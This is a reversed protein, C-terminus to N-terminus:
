LVHSFPRVCVPARMPPGRPGMENHLTVFIHSDLPIPEGTSIEVLQFRTSHHAALRCCNLFIDSAEARGEVTYVTATLPNYRCVPASATASPAPPIHDDMNLRRNPPLRASSVSRATPPPSPSFPQFGPPMAPCQPTTQPHPPLSPADPIEIIERMTNTAARATFTYAPTKAKHKASSLQERTQLPLLVTSALQRLNIPIRDHQQAQWLILPPREFESLFGTTATETSDTPWGDIKFHYASNPCFRGPISAGLYTTTTIASEGISLYSKLYNRNMVTATTLIRDCWLRWVFGNLMELVSSFAEPDTASDPWTGSMINPFCHADYLPLFQRGSIQFLQPDSAVASFWPEMIPKLAQLVAEFPPSNNGLAARISAVFEPFGIDTPWRLGLPLNCVEPLYFARLFLDEGHQVTAGILEGEPLLLPQSDLLINEVTTKLSPDRYYGEQAALVPCHATSTVLAPDFGQLASDDWLDDLIIGQGTTEQRYTVVSPTALITIFARTVSGHNDFLQTVLLIGGVSGTCLYHLRSQSDISKKNL